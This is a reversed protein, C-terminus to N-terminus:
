SNRNIIERSKHNMNSIALSFSDLLSQLLKEDNNNTDSYDPFYIGYPKVIGNLLKILGPNNSILCEQRFKLLFMFLISEPTKSSSNAITKKCDELGRLFDIKKSDTASPLISLKSLPALLTFSDKLEGILAFVNQYIHICKKIDSQQLHDINNIICSYLTTNTHLGAEKLIALADTIYKIASQYSSTKYIAIGCLEALKVDNHLNLDKLEAFMDIAANFFQPIFVKSVKLMTQFALNNKLGREHLRYTRDAVSCFLEFCRPNEFVTPDKVLIEFNEKIFDGSQITRLYDPWHCTYLNNGMGLLIEIVEKSLLSVLSPDNKSFIHQTIFTLFRPTISNFGDEKAMLEIIQKSADDLALKRREDNCALMTQSIRDNVFSVYSSPDERYPSNKQQFVSLTKPGSTGLMVRTINNNKHHTILQSFRELIPLIVKEERQPNKSEWSDLVLNGTNNIWAYAQGVIAFDRYNIHGNEIPNVAEEEGWSKRKRTPEATTKTDADDEIKKLLVYFGRNEDEMSNVLHEEFEKGMSQCCNTLYGLVYAHPDDLPLKLLHYSSYALGLDSGHLIIDPLRDKTKKKADVALTREFVSEEINYRIFIDALPPHKSANKYRVIKATEQLDELSEPLNNNHAKEILPAMQFYQFVKKGVNLILNRWENLHIPGEILTPLPYQLAEHCPTTARDINFYNFKILYKELATLLDSKEGDFLFLIKYAQEFPDSTNRNGTEIFDHIIQCMFFCIKYKENLQSSAQDSSLLGHKNQLRLLNDNITKDTPLIYPPVEDTNNGYVLLELKHNKLARMVPRLNFQSFIKKIEETKRKRVDDKNTDPVKAIQKEIDAWDGFLYNYLKNIEIKM